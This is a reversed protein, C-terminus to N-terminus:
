LSASLPSAISEYYCLWPPASSQHAWLGWIGVGELEEGLNHNRGLVGNGEGRGEMYVHGLAEQIQGWSCGPEEGLGQSWGLPM